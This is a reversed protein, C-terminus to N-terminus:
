CGFGTKMEAKAMTLNLGTLGLRFKDEMKAERTYKKRTKQARAERLHEKADQRLRGGM